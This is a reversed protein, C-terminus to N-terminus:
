GRFFKYVILLALIGPCLEVPSTEEDEESKTTNDIEETENKPEIADPVVTEEVEPEEPVVPELKEQDPKNPPVEDNYCRGIDFHIEKNRFGNKQIVLIFFGRMLKVNGPLKHLIYGAKDTEGSSILPQAFDIYKLYTNADEVQKYEEDLVYLNISASTCDVSISYTFEELSPTGLDRQEYITPAVVAASAINILFVLFFIKLM